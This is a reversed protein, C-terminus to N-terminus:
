QESVIKHLDAVSMKKSDPSQDNLEVALAKLKPLAFQLLEIYLEIARAPSVLAVQELWAQVNAANGHVLESVANRIRSTSVKDLRGTTLARPSTPNALSHIRREETTMQFEGDILSQTAYDM